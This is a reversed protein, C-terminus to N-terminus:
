ARCSSWRDTKVTKVKGCTTEIFKTGVFPSRFFSFMASSNWQPYRLYIPISPVCSSAFHQFSKFSSCRLAHILLRELNLTRKFQSLIMDDLNCCGGTRQLDQVHWSQWPMGIVATIGMREISNDFMELSGRIKGFCGDNGDNGLRSPARGAKASFSFQSFSSFMTMPLQSTEIQQTKICHFVSKKTINSACSNRPIIQNLNITNLLPLLPALEKATKTKNKALIEPRTENRLSAFHGTFLMMRAVGKWWDNTTRPNEPGSSRLDWGKAPDWKTARRPDWTSQQKAIVHQHDHRTAPATGQLCCMFRLDCQFQSM